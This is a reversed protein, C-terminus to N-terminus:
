GKDAPVLASLMEVRQRTAAPTLIDTSILDIWRRAAAMDGDKWASVALLERALHRYPRKDGTLPELQARADSAPGADILLTGARLGALDRLEVAVGNDSAIKEYAAIAAKADHKALEAAQRLSALPRYGPTGNAAIKGFAAEAEASKGDTSLAVAAEFAAGFESANRVQWWEYGRWGGIGILVALMVGIILYQYRDWLKKYQERRIEEDIESFIDSV